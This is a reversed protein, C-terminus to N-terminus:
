ELSNMYNVLDEIQQRSLQTTGGHTDFGLRSEAMRHLKVRNEASAFVFTMNFGVEKKDPREPYGGFLPEYKFDGLGPHGPSASVERLTRAMGNHLFVPPRDWIGRLPFTTLHGQKAELRGQDWPELDRQVGNEFDERNKSLLTFSGDRVTFMVVPPIAQQPNDPFNKRTFHPPAHCSICGVQPDEFLQRGRAVSPSEQDFPNPLLRGEHMQWEGVFRQFDRMNFSKGFLERSLTRFMEDRREELDIEHESSTDMKSQIDVHGAVEQHARVNTFDGQPTPAKFDDVPCHEMMMSRPEYGSIVGEFFFPQIAFLGRMQPVSMSGGIMIPGSQDEKSLYEQGLVQSVGWTRGDGTDQVHCHICSTDGDSSFFTSHALVEGREANTAPFPLRSISYDVLVEDSKGSKRDIVSLSGGLFNAVFLKDQSPTGAKGKAIGRPMFGTEYSGIPELYNIPDAAKPDIRWEQVSSSGQMTVFLRDDSITLRDPYAGEVRMLAPPIDGKVDGHTSEATDSTYRVWGKHAEYKNALLIHELGGEPVSAPIDLSGIDIFLIDNQIDRFKIELTGDVADFPGLAIQESRPLLAGTEPDRWVSYQTAPNEPDWSEGGFPDREKTVGFGVGLTAVILYDRGTDVDHYMVLDNVVNQIYIAGVEAELSTDVISIDQTGTNGVFLYRGDSSVACAIPKSRPNGVPIGPGLDGEAIWDKIRGYAADQSPNRFVVEGMAHSQFKPEADAYGGERTSIVATLLRSKQPNGPVVHGLASALSREGDPGAYFSGREEAHCSTTGCSQQLISHVSPRGDVTELFSAADMGGKVRMDLSEGEGEVVFVQDLYRNALFLKDGSPSYVGDQCYFDLPVEEVVEDTRTDLVIGFNSFRNIVLLHNGDPHAVIRFPSSGPESEGGDISLPIRKIVCMRELDVVAVESGPELESGQLALYAKRGDGSLEVDIPHDRRPQPEPAPNPNAVPQLSEREYKGGLAWRSSTLIGFPSVKTSKELGTESAPGTRALENSTPFPPSELALAYGLLAAGLGIGYVYKKYKSFRM